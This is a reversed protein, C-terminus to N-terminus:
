GTWPNPSYVGGPLGERWGRRRAAEDTQKKYIAATNAFVDGLGEAQGRAMAGGLNTRMADAARAAATTADLGSQAMQILSLRSAEDQSRLDALSGQARREATLVGRRYEDALNRGKDAAVSGGTLGARAMGFRLKRAADRQQRGLDTMYFDRLASLFDDYQAQRSPADFIADIRATADKIQRQRELERQEARKAYKSGGGSSM